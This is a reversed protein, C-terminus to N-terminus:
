GQSGDINVKLQKEIEVVDAVRLCGNSSQAIWILATVLAQKTKAVEHELQALREETRKTETTM